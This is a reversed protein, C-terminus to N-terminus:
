GGHLARRERPQAHRRGIVEARALDHQVPRVVVDGALAEQTRLVGGKFRRARPAPREKGVVGVLARGIQADVRLVGFRQQAYRGRPEDGRLAGRGGLALGKVPELHRVAKRPADRARGDGRPRPLNEGIPALAVRDGREPVRDQFGHADGAVSVGLRAPALVDRQQGRALFLEVRQAELAQVVGIGEAGVEGDLQRVIM